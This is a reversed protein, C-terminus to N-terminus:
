NAFAAEDGLREGRPHDPPLSDLARRLTEALQQRRYPKKIIPDSV